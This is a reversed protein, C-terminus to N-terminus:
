EEPQRDNSSNSSSNSNEGADTPNNKDTEDPRTSPEYPRMTPEDPQNQTPKQTPEENEPNEKPKDDGNNPRSPGPPPREPVDHNCSLQQIDNLKNTNLDHEEIFDDMFEMTAADPYPHRALLLISDKHGNLLHRCSYIIAYATYDTSVVWFGGKMYPTISMAFSLTMRATDYQNSSLIGTRSLKELFYPIQIGLPNMEQIVKRTGDDEDLQFDYVVCTSKAKTEKIAYWKGMFRDYEFDPVTSVNPCPGTRYMISGEVLMLLGVQLIVYLTPLHM